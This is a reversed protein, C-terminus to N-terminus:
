KKQNNLDPVASGGVPPRSTSVNQPKDGGSVVNSPKYGRQEVQKNSKDSLNMMRETM